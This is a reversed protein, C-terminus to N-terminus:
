GQFRSATTDLSGSPADLVPMESSGHGDFCRDKREGYCLGARKRVEYCLREFYAISKDLQIPELAERLPPYERRPSPRAILEPQQIHEEEHPQSLGTRM